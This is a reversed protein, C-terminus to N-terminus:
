ANETKLNPDLHTGNSHGVPIRQYRTRGEANEWSIDLVYPKVEGAIVELRRLHDHEPDARKGDILTKHSLVAREKPQIYKVTEFNIHVRSPGGPTEEDKLFVALVEVEKFAEDSTNTLELRVMAGADLFRITFPKDARSSNSM